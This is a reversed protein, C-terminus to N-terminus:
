FCELVNLQVEYLDFLWSICFHFSSFSEVDNLHFQDVQLNLSKSTTYLNTITNVSELSISAPSLLRIADNILENVSQLWTMYKNNYALLITKWSLLLDQTDFRETYNEEDDIFAPSELFKIAETVKSIPYKSRSTTNLQLNDVIPCVLGAVDALISIVKTASQQNWSLTEKNKNREILDPPIPKNACLLADCSPCVYNDLEEDVESIGICSCHYWEGCEDCCIMAKSEDYKQHCSCFLVPKFHTPCLYSLVGNEDLSLGGKLYACDLHFEKKCRENNCKILVGGGVETCLECDASQSSALSYPSKSPQTLKSEVCDKVHKWLIDTAASTKM